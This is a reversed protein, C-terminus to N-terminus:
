GTLRRKSTVTLDETSRSAATAAQGVWIFVSGIAFPLAPGAIFAMIIGGGLAPGIDHGAVICAHEAAENVQCGTAAVAALTLLVALAPDLGCRDRRDPNGPGAVASLGHGSHPSRTFDHRSRGGKWCSSPPKPRGNANLKSRISLRAIIRRRVEAEHRKAERPSPADLGSMSSAAHIARCAASRSAERM